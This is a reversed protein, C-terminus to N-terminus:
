AAIDMDHGDPCIPNGIDALASYSVDCNYGCQPCVWVKSPDDFMALIATYTKNRSSSDRLGTRPNNLLEKLEDM